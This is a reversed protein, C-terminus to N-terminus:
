SYFSALPTAFKADNMLVYFYNVSKRHIDRDRATQTQRHKGRLEPLHYQPPDAQRM